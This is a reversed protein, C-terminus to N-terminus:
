EEETTEGPPTEQNAPASSETLPKSGATGAGGIGPQIRVTNQAGTEAGPRIPDGKVGCGTLALPVCVAASGALRFIWLDTM